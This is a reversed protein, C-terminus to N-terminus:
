DAALIKFKLLDGPIEFNELGLSIVGRDYLIAEERLLSLIKGDNFRIYSGNTSNDSFIFKDLRWECQAHFRSAYSSHLIIDCDESRGLVITRKQQNVRVLQDQYYITLQNNYNPIRKPSLTQFFTIDDEEWKILYINYAELKGRIRTNIFKFSKEKLPAPLLEYVVETTMIQSARAIAAVRATLNVADGYIKENEIFVDGYHVGIRIQISSGAGANHNRISAQMACASNLAMEPSPYTCLIEDGIANILTGQYASIKDQMLSFTKTILQRALVNGEREYLATSGCIDAILIAAKIETNLAKGNM